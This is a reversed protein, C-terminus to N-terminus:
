AASVDASGSHAPTLAPAEDLLARVRTELDDGTFPKQIFGTAPELGQSHITLDESYGSMYLVKTEPDIARIRELTERGDIGSMMVDSLILDISHEGSAFFGVAEEGCAAEVIDYGRVGLMRSVISRVTPDDEVLLVTESGGTRSLAKPVAPAVPLSGLLLPLSVTFTSGRGPATDLTVQGGSQAVIGHVTALGLGTGREGKTTFFPEFIHAATAADIGSGTDGVSLLAADTDLDSTQVSITVQGGGPMSDRANIALNTIVQELQGRDAKVVVPSETVVIRLEVNEGIIRELLGSTQLVVDNLDLVEPTLVQRRGFALLQRTLAAGRDTSRLIEELDDAVGEDGRALRELALEGSGRVAVLLNNFDHAVGGALQGIAELKEAQRLRTELLQLSQAAQESQEKALAAETMDIGFSVTGVVANSLDRLESNQWFIPREDGSKTLIPNELREPLGGEELRAFEAWPGPYRDRSLLLDWNRGLVEERKYGTIEEAARNFTVINADQDLVLVIANSTEILRDAYEKAARLEHEVQKLATIDVAVGLVRVLEGDDGRFSSTRALLWCPDGCPRVIRFEFEFDVGHAYAETVEATVRERDDPHVLPRLHELGAPYDADVGYLTRLGDSWTTIGTVRDVDWTGM